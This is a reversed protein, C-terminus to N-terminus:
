HRCSVASYAIIRHCHRGLHTIDRWTHSTKGRTHHRGLHTIDGWIHSTEELVHHSSIHHRGLYVRLDQLNGATTNKVWKRRLYENHAPDCLYLSLYSVTWYFDLQLCTTATFSPFYTKSSPVPCFALPSSTSSLLSLLLLHPISFLHCICLALSSMGPQQHRSTAFFQSHNFSLVQHLQSPLLHHLPLCSGPSPHQTYCALSRFDVKASM